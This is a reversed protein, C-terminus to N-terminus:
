TENPVEFYLICIHPMFRDIKPFLKSQERIWKLREKTQYDKM